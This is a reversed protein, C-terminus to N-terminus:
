FEEDATFLLENGNSSPIVRHADLPLEPIRLKVRTGTDSESELILAGGLQNVLDSVICLGLGHGKHKKCPGFEGQRFRQFIEKQFSPDLGIGFDSVSIELQDDVIHAEVIVKKLTGCFEVANSILNSCIVQLIHSDTRFRLHDTVELIVQISNEEIAHSFYSVQNEILSNVSVRSASPRLEGLEIEAATIINRMQFDLQIAQKQIIASMRKVKEETTLGWISAALGIISAMPNNIENRVNSLFQSKGAESQRLRSSLNRIEDEMEASKEVWQNPEGQTLRRNLEDLLQENSYHDPKM